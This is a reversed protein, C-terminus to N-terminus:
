SALLLPADEDICILPEPSSATRYSALVLGFGSFCAILVGADDRVVALGITQAPAAYTVGAASSM